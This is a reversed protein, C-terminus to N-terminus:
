HADFRAVAEVFRWGSPERKMLYDYGTVSSGGRELKTVLVVVASYGDAAERSRLDYVKGGTSRATGARPLGIAVVGVEKAPCGAHPSVSDTPLTPVLIGACTMDAEVRVADVLGIGMRRLAAERLRLIGSPVRAITRMTSEVILPDARLPRPEVLLKLRGQDMQVARVVATLLATDAAPDPALAQGNLAPTLTALAM